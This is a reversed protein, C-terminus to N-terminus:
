VEKFNGIDDQYNIVEYYMDRFASYDKLKDSINKVQLIKLVCVTLIMKAVLYNIRFDDGLSTQQNIGHSLDNRYSVTKKLFEDFKVEPMAVSIVDYIDNFVEEIKTRLNDKIKYVFRDNFWKKLESKPPLFNMIEMKKRYFDDISKKNDIGNKIRKRHYDEISQIINLFRNNFMVNTLRVDSDQFWNNSDIFNDIIVEYEEVCSFWLKIIDHLENKDCNWNSFLMGWRSLSNTIDNQNLTFNTVSTRSIDSSISSDVNFKSDHMVYLIKLSLPKGASIELLKKFRIANMISDKFEVGNKYEFIISKQYYTKISTNFDLHEKLIEDHFILTMNDSVVLSETKLTSVREEKGNRWIGGRGNLKYNVDNGDYWNQLESILFSTAKIKFDKINNVHVGNLYYSIKYRLKYLEEGIKEWGKYYCQYLTCYDGYIVHHYRQMKNFQNPKIDIGDLYKSTYLTLDIEKDIHNISLEGYSKIGDPLWWQGHIIQPKM